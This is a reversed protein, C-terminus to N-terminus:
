DPIGKDWFQMTQLVWFIAFLVLLGAEALFVWHPFPDIESTVNAIGAVVTFATVAGIGGAIWRYWRRYTTAKMRPYRLAGPPDPEVARSNIVAVACILGFMPVAAVYHALRSFWTDDVYFWLAFAVFVVSGVALPRRYRDLEELKWALWWALALAAVGLVVLTQMNNQVSSLFEDPICKEHGGPCPPDGARPAIPTPVVAVVPALMGAINLLLDERNADRGKIAILGVSMATLTGVFVSRVPTYYYASISGLYGVGDAIEIGVAVALYVALAVISVRLYRYTRKTSESAIAM